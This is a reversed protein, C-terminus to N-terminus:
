RKEQADDSFDLVSTMIKYLFVEYWVFFGM